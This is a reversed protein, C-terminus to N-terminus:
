KIKSVIEHMDKGCSAKILARIAKGTTGALELQKEKSLHQNESYIKDMLFHSFVLTANILDEDSYEHHIEANELCLNALFDISTQIKAKM